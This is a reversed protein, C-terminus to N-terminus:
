SGNVSHFSNRSGSVFNTTNVGIDQREEEDVLDATPIRELDVRSLPVRLSNQYQNYIKAPNHIQKSSPKQKPSNKNASKVTHHSAQPSLTTVQLNNVVSSGQRSIQLMTSNHNPPM